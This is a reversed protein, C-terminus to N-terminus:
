VFTPLIVCNSIVSTLKGRYSVNNSEALDDQAWVAQLLGRCHNFCRSSSMQETRSILDLVNARQEDERSECGIVFIPFQQKCFRLRPLIAFAQDIQQQMRIPQDILGESIRNLYVLIALQYLKIVLTPDDDDDTINPIPLSRIRWDLVELFSKFEHLKGRKGLQISSSSVVDCVQSLLNLISLIPPQLNSVKSSFFDPPILTLKQNGEKNWHLLSFRALVDHYYAWDLLVAVDSDSELLTQVSSAAIVAKAGDVYQTWQGSTCSSQHVEFSCLLMGAAIHQIAEKASLSLSFSGEKLKELAAIKLELAQSQLGYRHLSSFALLAQLAAAGSATEGELAIRVLIKGLSVADQGFTALSGSAVHCFHNLLDEDLVKLKSPNWSIQIGLLSLNHVPVPSILSQYLEIDWNSTHVFRAGSIKGAM